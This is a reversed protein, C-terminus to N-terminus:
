ACRAGDSARPGQSLLSLALRIVAEDSMADTGGELGQAATEAALEQRLSARLHKALEAGAWGNQVIRSEDGGTSLLMLIDALFEEAQEHVAAADKHGPDDAASGPTRCAPSESSRSRM